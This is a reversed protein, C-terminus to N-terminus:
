SLEKKLINEFRTKSIYHDALLNGDHILAYTGFGSPVNLIDAPSTLKTIKLDIEHRAAAQRLDNVSKEHWPCQDAYLLQWGRYNELNAEWDHFEPIASERDFPKYMLKFRDKEAAQLYENKEFLTHDAM